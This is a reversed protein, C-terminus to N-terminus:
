AWRDDRPEDDRGQSEDSAEKTLLRNAPRAARPERRARPSPAARRRDRPRPDPASDALELVVAPEGALEEPDGTSLHVDKVERIPISLTVEIGTGPERGSLVFGDRSAALSGVYDHHIGKRRWAVRNALVENMSPSDGPAGSVLM